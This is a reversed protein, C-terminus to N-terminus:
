WIRKSSLYYSFSKAIRVACKVFSSVVMKSPYWWWYRSTGGCIVYPIVLKSFLCWLCCSLSVCVIVKMWVSAGLEVRYAEIQLHTWLFLM